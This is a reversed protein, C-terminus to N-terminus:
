YINEKPIILYTKNIGYAIVSKVVGKKCYESVTKNL